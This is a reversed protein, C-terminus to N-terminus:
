QDGGRLAKEWRADFRKRSGSIPLSRTCYSAFFEAGTTKLAGQICQVVPLLDRVDTCDGSVEVHVILKV